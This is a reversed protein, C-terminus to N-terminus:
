KSWNSIILFIGSLNYLKSKDIVFEDSAKIATIDAIIPTEKNLTCLIIGLLHCVVM